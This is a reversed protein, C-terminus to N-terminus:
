AWTVETNGYGNDNLWVEVDDSDREVWIAKSLIMDLFQALYVNYRETDKEKFFNKVDEWQARTSLGGLLVSVLWGFGGMGHGVADLFRGLNLKLWEWLTTKGLKHKVFSRLIVETELRSVIEPTICFELTRILLSPSRTSGLSTLCTERKNISSTNETSKLIVEYEKEGGHELVFDFVAGRININIAKDDGVAFKEFMEQAANQVEADDRGNSFILAKFMHELLTEDKKFEWGKDKLIKSILRRKFLKLSALVAESEFAWAQQISELASFITKWVFFNKEEDFTQLLALVPSTKSRGSQAVALADAILGIRDNISLLGAKANQALIELRAASYAVRYFGTHDANLKFFEPITLTKTREQLTVDADVGDKSRLQLALPYLVTNEDEEAKGGALFRHQTLVASGASEDVDVVPYGVHRTWTEMMGAVDKGSVESLAKWLDSTKANGYAHRKLYVQVGEVFVNVGLLGAMMRIIACGKCYSIADFIQGIESPKNVPVEIQHSQRNADLVLGEQYAGSAYNEWMQWEPNLTEWAYLEAWDAFAEKLWLGEWFDMMVLNGFWQHALEHVLVSGAWRYAEASTEEKDVLLISEMFVILGWNEMAGPAGPVAILDMKPLPYPEAFIKEFVQLTRPTLELALRGHEINKDPLAYVRVPVRFATTETYRLEGACFCVIYTSMLPSKNFTVAKKEKRNTGKLAVESCVDMNGLATIYPDVILTVSFTAKLAPEDFCPFVKRAATPEM